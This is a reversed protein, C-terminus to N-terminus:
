FLLRAIMLALAATLLVAQGPTFYRAPLCRKDTPQHDVSNAKIM